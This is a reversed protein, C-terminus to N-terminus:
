RVSPPWGKYRWHLPPITWRRSCTWKAMMSGSGPTSAAIDAKNQHDASVIEIPKGMISGGYDEVAMEAATVAGPGEISKYLGSMDSLVGIRLVGDSLEANAAMPLSVATAAAVTAIGTKWNSFM